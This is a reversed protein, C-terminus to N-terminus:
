NMIFCSWRNWGGQYHTEFSDKNFAARVAGRFTGVGEFWLARIVNSTAKKFHRHAVFTPLM